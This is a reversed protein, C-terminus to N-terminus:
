SVDLFDPTTVKYKAHWTSEEPCIEDSEGPEIPIVATIDMTATGGTTTSGTLTGLDTNLTEYDCHVTGFITSCNVTVTAGDSVVTGNSGTGIKHIELAGKHIVKVTCNCEEFTLTEVLGRVTETAGGANAVRGAVTSKNCEVTKFTTTLVPKEESVAHIETGAALMTGAPSTLVTASASNAGTFAMLAAAAVAALGLMKLHKM